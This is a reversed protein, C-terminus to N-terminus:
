NLSRRDKLIERAANHGPIASVAGGPHASSGCQYLARIPSRYNAYHPVPRQFFLQDLAIEGHLEHGGPMGLIDELDPPLYAEFAILSDRFGPSFEEMVSLVNGVFGDRESAWDGDKLQYPAHGGSLTVVHRGDPALSDDIHSPVIASIFPRKSYWGYKADDHAREMYDITPGIHTYAPYEVGAQGSSFGRYTPLRDVACNVKFCQGQCRYRDIAEMFGEPLEGRPVLGGFTAPAALNSAVLRSRFERGDRTVVGTARGARVEIREVEAGTEIKMGHARGAAAIANSISGMGGKAFGLGNEGLLHFLLSYATGPSHPGRFNGIGAWYCFLAKVEESEFWRSMFDFASQTMADVIGYFEEGLGRYRWGMRAVDLLAAASREGPDVPTELLLRRLAIITRSIDEFFKTYNEADRRSYRAIESQTTAADTSFVICDDGELPHVVEKMRLHVLGHRALDLEAIVKPHLHGMIYSFTSARFGPHFEETVAAGGVLHRRELVLTRLGAKALYAGCTLGNHGGGVIIADYSPTM